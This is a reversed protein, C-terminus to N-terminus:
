ARNESGTWDAFHQLFHIGADLAAEVDGLLVSEDPHHSIGGPSRLFIMAAPLHPAIMMADHGAGSVLPSASSGAQRVSLQALHILSANLPVTQQESSILHSTEIKRDVGIALAAQLMADFAARRVEDNASRVDLSCRVLGPIINGAGPSACTRAWHQRGAGPTIARATSEVTLMWEAAATMADRRLRWPRQAQTDPADVFHSCRVLKAWCHRRCCMAAQNADDLVPGQEIHFELYARCQAQISSHMSYRQPHARPTLM